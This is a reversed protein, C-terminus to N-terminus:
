KFYKDNIDHLLLYVDGDLLFDPFISTGNMKFVIEKDRWKAPHKPPSDIKFKGNHACGNRIHSFFQIDPKTSIKKYTNTNCLIDWMAIVFIRNIQTFANRLKKSERLGEAAIARILKRTSIVLDKSLNTYSSKIGATPYKDKVVEQVDPTRLAMAGLCMEAYADVITDEFFKEVIAIRRSRKGRGAMEPM